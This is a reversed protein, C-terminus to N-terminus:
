EIVSGEFYEFRMSSDLHHLSSKSVQSQTNKYELVSPSELTKFFSPILDAKGERLAQRLVYAGSVASVPNNMYFINHVIIQRTLCEIDATHPHSSMPDVFFIVGGLDGNCMMAVVQADGGLPGSKCTTGYVVDPDDRFIERLITMTTNTGTLRFKKLLNRNALIFDVMAPKMHNHAILVLCRMQRPNFVSEFDEDCPVHISSDLDEYSKDTVSTTSASSSHCYKCKENGDHTMSVTQSRKIPNKEDNISGMSQQVFSSYNLSCNSLQEKRSHKDKRRTNLCYKWPSSGMKLTYSLFLQICITLSIIHNYFQIFSSLGTCSKQNVYRKIQKFVTIIEVIFSVVTM